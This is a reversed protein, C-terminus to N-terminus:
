RSAIIGICQHHHRQQKNTGENKHKHHVGHHHFPLRSGLNPSIPSPPPAISFSLALQQWCAVGATCGAALRFFARGCCVLRFPVRLNGRGKRERENWGKMWGRGGLKMGAGLFCGARM